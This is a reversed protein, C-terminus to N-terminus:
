FNRRRPVEGVAGHRARAFRRCRTLVIQATENPQLRVRSRLSFIPDLVAGVTNSLPQDAIVSIPDAASHGRGLFRARDTEFQVGGITDIATALVHVGWVPKDESSRSRRRALLASHRGDFQTEIFLNSFAPHAIDSALPALVMESYSTLEVERPRSSTNTVSIRRM